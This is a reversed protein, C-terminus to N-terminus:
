FDKAFRKGIRVSGSTVHSCGPVIVRVVVIESEPPSLKVVVIRDFGQEMLNHRLTDLAVALNKPPMLPTAPAELRENTSDFWWALSDRAQVYGLAQLSKHKELDERAGAVVTARTQVAELIAREMAMFPDIHAGYGAILRMPDAASKEDLCAVFASVGGLASLQKIELAIDLQKLQRCLAYLKSSDVLDLNVSTGIKGLEGVAVADRELVELLGSLVADTEDAGAALGVSRWIPPNYSGIPPKFPCLVEHAPVWIKEGELSLGTVWAMPQSDSTAVGVPLPIDSPAIYLENSRELEAQCAIHLPLPTNEAWYREIFEMLASLRAQESDWGKGNLVTINGDIEQAQPYFVQWCSVRLENLGTIDSIRQAGLRKAERNAIPLLETAKMTRWGSATERDGISWVQRRM